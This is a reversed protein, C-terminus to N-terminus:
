KFKLQTKVKHFTIFDSCCWLSQRKILARPLSTLLCLAQPNSSPIGSGTFALVITHRYTQLGPAGVPLISPLSLLAEPLEFTLLQCACCHVVSVRDWCSPPCACAGWIYVYVTVRYVYYLYLIAYICVYMVSSPYIYFSCTDEFFLQAILVHFSNSRKLLWHFTFWFWISIRMEGWCFLQWGSYLIGFASSVSPWVYVRVATPIYVWVVVLLCQPCEEWFEHISM